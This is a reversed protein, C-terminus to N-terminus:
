VENYTLRQNCPCTFLAAILQQHLASESTPLSEKRPTMQSLPKSTRRIM